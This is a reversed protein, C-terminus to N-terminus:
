AIFHIRPLDAQGAADMYGRGAAGVSFPLKSLRVVAFAAVYACGPNKSTDALNPVKVGSFLVGVATQRGDLATDDYPGLLGSATIVALVTGSPIYGNPYHTAATFAAISLTGGPTFGEGIGGPQPILWSRKEAQYSVTSVTIDTM